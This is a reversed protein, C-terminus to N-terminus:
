GARGVLRRERLRRVHEPRPQQAVGVGAVDAVRPHRQLADVAVRGAPARARGADVHPQAPARSRSRAWASQPNSTSLCRRRRRDSATTRATGCSRARRQQGAPARCSPPDARRPQAARRDDVEVDDVVAPHQAQREGGGDARRDLPHEVAGVRRARARATGPPRARPRRRALDLIVASSSRRPESGASASSNRRSALALTSVEEDGALVRRREAGRGAGAPQARPRARPHGSQHEGAGPGVGAPRRRHLARYAPGPPRARRAPRGRFPACM